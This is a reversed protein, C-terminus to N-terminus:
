PMTEEVVQRAIWRKMLWRVGVLDYLGRWLRNHLGYKSVGHIRPRHNVVIEKFVAGRAELLSPLFRHMGNFVPVERLWKSRYAKLSCGIDTISDGLVQRRVANAVRSSLRRLWDDQRIRRIGSVVDSEKLAELVIPVDAPDNQLDADLTVVIPAKAADFGIALAASQGANRALRLIRIRGDERGLDALIRDSGDTSGDDVFLVEYTWPHDALSQRIESSLRHLNDEENFLPIVLSVDPQNM